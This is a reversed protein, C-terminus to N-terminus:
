RLAEARASVHRGNWEAAASLRRSRGSIFMPHFFATGMVTEGAFGERGTPASGLLTAVSLQLAKSGRRRGDRLPAVILRGALSREHGARWLQLSHDSRLVAAEYEVADSAVRGRAMVGMSRLPALASAASARAIFDLDYASTIQELSFPVKFQGVRVRLARSLRAEVYLDRWVGDHTVDREAQFAIRDGITGVMGVRRRPLSIRDAMPPEDGPVILDDHLWALSQVRATLDITVDDGFRFRPRRAWSVVARDRRPPAVPTLQAAAQLRAQEALPVPPAQVPAAAPQQGHLPAGLAVVAAAVVFAFRTRM